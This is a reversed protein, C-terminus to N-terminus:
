IWSSPLLSQWTGRLHCSLTAHSSLWAELSHWHCSTVIASLHFIWLVPCHEMVLMYPSRVHIDSSNWGWRGNENQVTNLPWVHIVNFHVHIYFMFHFALCNTVTQHKSGDYDAAKNLLAFDSMDGVSVCAACTCTVPVSGWEQGWIPQFMKPTTKPLNVVAQSHKKSYSAKWQRRILCTVFNRFIFRFTLM